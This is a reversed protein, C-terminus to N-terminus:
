PALTTPGFVRVSRPTYERAAPRLVVYALADFRLFTDM